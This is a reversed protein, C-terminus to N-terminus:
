FRYPTKKLANQSMGFAKSVLKMEDVHEFVEKSFYILYRPTAECEGCVVNEADENMQEVRCKLELDESNINACSGKSVMKLEDVKEEVKRALLTLYCPAGKCESCVVDKTVENIQEVRYKQELNADIVNACPREFNDEKEM